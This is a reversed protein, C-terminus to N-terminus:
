GSLLHATNVLFPERCLMRNNPAQLLLPLCNALSVWHRRQPCAFSLSHSFRPQPCKADRGLCPDTHSTDLDDTHWCLTHNSGWFHQSMEPKHPGRLSPGPRCLETSKQGWLQPAPPRQSAVLCEWLWPWYDSEWSSGAWRGWGRSGRSRVRWQDDWSLWRCEEVFWM